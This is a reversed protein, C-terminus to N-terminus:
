LLGKMREADEVAGRAHWGVWFFLDCLMHVKLMLQENLIGSRALAQWDMSDPVEVGSIFVASQIMERKLTENNYVITLFTQQDQSLEGTEEDPLEYASLAAEVAEATPRKMEDM